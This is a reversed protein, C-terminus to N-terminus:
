SWGPTILPCIQILHVVTSWVSLCDLTFNISHIQVKDYVWGVIRWQNNEAHWPLTKKLDFQCCLTSNLAPFRSLATAQFSGLLPTEGPGECTGPEELSKWNTVLSDPPSTMKKSFEWSIRDKEREREKESEPLISGSEHLLSPFFHYTLLLLVELVGQINWPDMQLKAVITWTCNGPLLKVPEHVHRVTM